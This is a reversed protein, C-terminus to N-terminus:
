ENLSFRLGLRINFNLPKEKYITEVESNNKFHYAVGPEAYIGINKALQYQIGIASNVSWQLQKVSIKQQSRTQLKNDIVFDTSLSGSVNKEVLGGGSIYTSTKQNRWITYNVNLPIGVYHLTQNSNYYHTDSGSHLQSSLITYTLGSTISWRDDLNYKMSVGLTIPQLHKIDTYVHQYESQTHIDDSSVSKLPAAIAIEDELPPENLRFSGYGDHKRAAGAPINSAYLDTQWKASQRQRKYAPLQFGSTKKTEIESQLSNNDIPHQTQTEDSVVAKNELQKEIEESIEETKDPTVSTHLEGIQSAIKTEPRRKETALALIQEKVEKVTEKEIPASTASTYPENEVQEAVMVEQQDEKLTYFGIFFLILAVAAVSGIRLSWLPINRKAPTAKVANDASVIQEIRNWLGEPAPEEHHKMRDRLNNPWQNNM